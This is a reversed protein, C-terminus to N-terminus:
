RRNLRSVSLIVIFVCMKMMCLDTFLLSAFAAKLQNWSYIFEIKCEGFINYNTTTTKKQTRKRLLNIKKKNRKKTKSKNLAATLFTM